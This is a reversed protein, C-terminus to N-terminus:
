IHLIGCCTLKGYKRKSFSFSGVTYKIDQFEVDVSIRKPFRFEKKELNFMTDNNNNSNTEISEGDAISNEAISSDNSTINGSYCNNGSCCISGNTSTCCRFVSPIQVSTCQSKGEKKSTM